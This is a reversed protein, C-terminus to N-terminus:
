AVPHEKGLNEEPSTQRTESGRHEKWAYSVLLSLPILCVLPMPIKAITYLPLRWQQQL